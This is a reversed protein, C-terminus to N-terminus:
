IRYTKKKYKNFYSYPIFGDKQLRGIVISQDVNNKRAFFLISTFNFCKRNVFRNYLDPDILIDAALKDVKEEEEDDKNITFNAKKKSILIHSIEHFLTFYFKDLAKGCDNIAILYCKEEKLYKTFGRIKSEKLYPLVIFKVGCKNLTRKLNEILPGGRVHSYRKLLNITNKFANENFELCKQKRSLEIALAIWANRLVIEKIRVDGRNLRKCKVFLREKKLEKLSSINLTDILKKEIEKLSLSEKDIELIEKLFGKDFYSVIEKINVEEM